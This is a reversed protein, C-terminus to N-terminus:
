VGQEYAIRECGRRMSIFKRRFGDQRGINPFRWTFNALSVAERNGVPIGKAVDRTVTTTPFLPV